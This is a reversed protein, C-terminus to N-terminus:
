GRKKLHPGALNLVFDMEQDPVRNAVVGLPRNELRLKAVLSDDILSMRDTFPTVALARVDLAEAVVPTGLGLGYGERLSAGGELLVVDKGASVREFATKIRGLLDPEKKAKLAETLLNETAVVGVLDCPEESLGLTRGVFYADEDALGCTAQWPHTSLPKLYGVKHGDAQLRRGLGLCLATKGSFTHLSTIYLAIM